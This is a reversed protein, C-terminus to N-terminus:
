AAGKPTDPDHRFVPVHRQQLPARIGRMTLWAARRQRPTMRDAAEPTIVIHRALQTSMVPPQDDPRRFLNM